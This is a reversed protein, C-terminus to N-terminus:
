RVGKIGQATIPTENGGAKICKWQPKVLTIERTSGGM